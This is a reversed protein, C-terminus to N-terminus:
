AYARDKSDGPTRGDSQSDTQRDTQRNCQHITDLRSFTAFRKRSKTAGDNTKKQGWAGIGLELPLGEAPAGFVYPLFIKAIKSQLRRKDRFRCSLPGYNSHFTLLFDYTASRYHRNRHGQTVELGPKLTM